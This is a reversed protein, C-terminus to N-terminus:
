QLDIRALKKLKAVEASSLLRYEGAKLRGLRIGGFEVRRLGTVPHGVRECMKKVQRKRGEHLTIELTSHSGKAHLMRVKAQRTTGEGIDVGKQLKWLAQKSPKGKVTAQYTKEVGFKPHTLQHCLAGDNTMLLVGETDKDLRGVPYLRAPLDATLESVTRRGRSDTVTSLYGAPKNLLAYFKKETEIREGDVEVVDREPDVTAGQKKVIQGNVAVRGAAMLREGHRRSAVGATALFHQLRM